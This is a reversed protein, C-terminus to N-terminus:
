EGEGRKYVVANGNGIFAADTKNNKVQKLLYSYKKECAKLYYVAFEVLDPDSAEDFIRQAKLWEKHAQELLKEDAWGYDDTAKEKVLVWKVAKDWVEKLSM